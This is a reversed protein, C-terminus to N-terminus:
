FNKEAAMAGSEGATLSIGAAGRLADWCRVTVLRGDFLAIDKAEFQAVIRSLTEPQVGVMAAIQQRTLPLPIVVDGGPAATESDRAFEMLFLALRRRAPMTVVRMLLERMTEVEAAAAALVWGASGDGRLLERFESIRIITVLSPALTVATVSHPEDVIGGRWGLLDGPRALRLLAMNGETDVRKLAILGQDVRYVFDRADGEHFLIQGREIMRVQRRWAGRRRAVGKDPMARTRLPADAPSPAARQLHPGIRHVVAKVHDILRKQSWIPNRAYCALVITREREMEIPYGFGVRLGAARVAAARLFVTEPLTELHDLWEAQAFMSVRGPLGIGRPFRCDRSIQAFRDLGTAHKLASAAFVLADDSGGIDWLEAYDWGGEALVDDIELHGDRPM